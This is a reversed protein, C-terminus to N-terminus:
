SPYNVVGYIQQLLEAAQFGIKINRSLNYLIMM